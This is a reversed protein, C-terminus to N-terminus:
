EYDTCRRTTDREAEECPPMPLGSLIRINHIVLDKVLPSVDADQHIARVIAQGKAPDCSRTWHDMKEVWRFNKAYRKAVTKALLDIAEPSELNLLELLYRQEPWPEAALLDRARWDREVSERTFPRGDPPKTNWAYKFQNLFRLAAKPYYLRDAHRSYESSDYCYGVVALLLNRLSRNFHWDRPQVDRRLWRATSEPVKGLDAFFRYNPRGGIFWYENARGNANKTFNAEASACVGNTAVHKGGRAVPKIHDAWDEQELGSLGYDLMWLNAGTLACVARDWAFIQARTEDSFKGRAKVRKRKRAM